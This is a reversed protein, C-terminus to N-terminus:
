CNLDNFRQRARFLAVEAAAREKQEATHARQRLEPLESDLRSCAVRDRPNLKHRQVHVRYEEKSMGTLPQIATAMADRQELRMVDAGKRTKGTMRDMGQTPTADIEVAGVCPAHSYSVSGNAECHYVPKQAHVSMSWTGAGLVLCAAFFRVVRGVLTMRMQAIAPDREPM